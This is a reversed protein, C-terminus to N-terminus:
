IIANKFFCNISGCSLNQTFIINEYLVDQGNTNDCTFLVTDAFVITVKYYPHVCISAGNGTTGLLEKLNLNTFAFKTNAISKIVPLSMNNVYIYGVKHRLFMDNSYVAGSCIINGSVIINSGVIVSGGISVNDNITASTQATETKMSITQTSDNYTIGTIRQKITSIDDTHLNLTSAVNQNLDALYSLVTPTITIGNVLLNGVLNLVQNNALLLGGNAHIISSATLKTTSLGHISISVPDIYSAPNVSFFRFITSASSNTSGAGNSIFYDTGTYYHSGYFSTTNSTDSLYLQKRNINVANIITTVGNNYTIGTTANQLNTISMHADETLNKIFSLKADTVDGNGIFAANLRNGSNIKNHKLAILNFVTASFEPDNNIAIAIENLTDLLGPAGGILDSINRRVYHCTAIQDTDLTIEPEPVTPIGTFNPSDIPAYVLKMDIGDILIQKFSGTGDSTISATTQNGSHVYLNTDSINVINYFSNTGTFTNYGRLKSYRKDAFAITLEGSDNRFNNVNFIKSDLHTPILYTSM